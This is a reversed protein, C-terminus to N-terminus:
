IYIGIQLSGSCCFLLCRLLLCRDMWRVSHIELKNM